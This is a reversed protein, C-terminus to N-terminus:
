KSAEVLGMNAQPNEPDVQLAKLFSERAAEKNKIQLYIIGKGILLNPNKPNIAIAKDLEQLSLDFKGQEFYSAAINQHSQWLRPNLKAAIQYSEIAKGIDESDRYANGLNHYADAYNPKLLIATQFEQISRQKDGLRGYVDGLNNHNNPSSPSTKGTAIWFTDENRWDMNRFITRASLTVIVLTFMIYILKTLNKKYSLKVILWAVLIFIGLSGLYIYREAVIWTWRFPTLTPILTIIVFSLWFFAVKNKFFGYVIAGLYVILVVARIIFNMPEFSLESHYITLDKPWVLLELYSSIAIPITILINDVGREQYHIQTLTTEREGLNAYAFLGYLLSLILFPVLKKWSKKISGFAIEYLILTPILMLSSIHSMISLFFSLISWPYYGGKKKSLIYLLFSLLFFFSYQPYLGGSIWAIPESLLPHVAFILATFIAVKKSYLYSVLGFIVWTTGIHFLINTFRFLFPNLGTLHFILFNLLPRIFGYFHDTVYSFSGLNKNNVIEAIDDSLFANSLSNSYTIFILLALVGLFPANKQFWNSM